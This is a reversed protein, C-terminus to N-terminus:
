PQKGTRTPYGADTWAPWGENLVVAPIGREKLKRAVIHSAECGFGACYVIIEFRARLTPELRAFAADFDEEPLNLAGPIHGMEYFAGARADLFLAGRESRLKAAPAEILEDGPQVYVNSTLAFGHGSFQNWALGLLSGAITILLARGARLEM